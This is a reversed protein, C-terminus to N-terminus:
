EGVPELETSGADATADEWLNAIGDAVAGVIQPNLAVLALAVLIAAISVSGGKSLRGSRNRRRSSRPLSGTAPRASTTRREPASTTTTGLAAHLEREAAQV